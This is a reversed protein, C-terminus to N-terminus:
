RTKERGSVRGIGTVVGAAPAQSKYLGWAAFASFELFETGDDILNSIRERATLKGRKRHREVAEDGGGMKVTEMNKCLENFLETNYAHNTKYIESQNNIKSEIKQM